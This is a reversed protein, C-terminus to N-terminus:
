RPSPGYVSAPVVQCDSAGVPERPECARQRHRDRVDAQIVELDVRVRAAGSLEAQVAIAGLDVAPQLVSGM